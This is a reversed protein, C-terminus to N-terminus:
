GKYFSYLNGAVIAVVIAVTAGIKVWRVTSGFREERPTSLHPLAVLLRAPVIGELDKGQWIRVDTLELLAALGMGLAAGVALGIISIMLHNPSTPKIPLSPPDLIRFQEGQQRQELSTALQSQM